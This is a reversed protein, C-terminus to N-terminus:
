LATRTVLARPGAQITAVVTVVHGQARQASRVGNSIGSFSSKLDDPNQLYEETLIAMRM